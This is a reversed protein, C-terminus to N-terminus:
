EDAYQKIGGVCHRPQKNLPILNCKRSLLLTTVWAYGNTPGFGAFDVQILNKNRLIEAAEPYWDSNDLIIFGDDELYEVVHKVCEYRYKADIIIIDFKKDIKKLANIYDDKKELLLIEQNNLKKKAITKYWNKDHEVSIINKSRKAWFISSNGSGFEFISKQSFDLQTLYEIAPYTYWPIENDDSNIPLGQKISKFQAHDLALIKFNKVQTIVADIKKSILLPVLQKFFKM